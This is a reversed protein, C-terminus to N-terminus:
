VKRFHRESVIILIKKIFCESKLVFKKKKDIETTTAKEIISKKKTIKLLKNQIKRLWYSM